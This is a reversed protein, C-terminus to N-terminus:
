TNTCDSGFFDFPILAVGFRGLNQSLRVALLDFNSTSPNYFYIKDSISGGQKGGIILFSDRFPLYEGDHFSGGTSPLQYPGFSWSKTIFSYVETTTQYGAAIVLEQVGSPRTVMGGYGNGHDNVTDDISTWGGTVTNYIRYKRRNNSVQTVIHTTNLAVIVHHITAFPLDEAPIWTNSVSDYLEADVTSSPTKGGAVYFHSENVRAGYAYERGISMSPAPAWSDSAKIYFHCASIYGGGYGGCFMPRYYIFGGFASHHNFPFNMPEFCNSATSPADPNIIEVNNTSGTSTVGGVVMILGDYLM